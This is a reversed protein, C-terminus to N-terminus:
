KAMNGSLQNETLLPWVVLGKRGSFFHMAHVGSLIPRQLEGRRHVIIKYDFRSENPM